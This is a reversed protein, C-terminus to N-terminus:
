QHRGTDLGESYVFEEDHESQQSLVGLYTM